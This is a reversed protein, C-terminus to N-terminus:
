ELHPHSSVVAVSTIAPLLLPIIIRLFIKPESYGDIRAAHM